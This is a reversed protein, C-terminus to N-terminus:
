SQPKVTTGIRIAFNGSRNMGAPSKEHEAPHHAQHTLRVVHTSEKVFSAFASFRSATCLVDVLWMYTM